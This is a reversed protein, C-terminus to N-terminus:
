FRMQGTEKKCSLAKILRPPYGFIIPMLFQRDVKDKACLSKEM